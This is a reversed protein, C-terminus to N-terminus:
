APPPCWCDSRLRFVQQATRGLMSRREADTLRAAEIVQRPVPDGINFPTDSGLMLREASAKHALFELTDADFVCTDFYLAEFGKVPDQTTGAFAHNRALRGLAYPLAAGGHSIVLKVGPFTLLHGSFLLRSVAISTEAVRGIANVLEHDDLRTDGCLFMPHLFIGAGRTSAAAWFPDLAPDDLKGSAGHPLTGIMAGAFGRDLADTLVEAALKGDQLPVSALPTFRPEGRLEEWMCDNLFRSWAAGEAAELEYGELDTWLGLIQHDIGAKDMWSRRDALDLLRPNVPRTPEAGPFQFRPLKGTERIVKVHPFKAGETELRALALKPVFHAHIDITIAKMEAPERM